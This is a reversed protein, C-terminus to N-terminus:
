VSLRWVCSALRLRRRPKQQSQRRCLRIVYDVSIDAKLSTEHGEGFSKALSYTAPFNSATDSDPRAGVDPDTRSVAHLFSFDLYIRNFRDPKWINCPLQRALRPEETNQVQELNRFVPATFVNVQNAEV